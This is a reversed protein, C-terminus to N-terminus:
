TGLASRMASAARSITQNESSGPSVVVVRLCRMGVITVMGFHPSVMVEPVMVPQDRSSPSGTVSPIGRSVTSVSFATSSTSAGALPTSRLITALTPLSTGTIPATATM